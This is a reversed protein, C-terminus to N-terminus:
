WKAFVVLVQAASQDTTTQQVTESIVATVPERVELLLSGIWFRPLSKLHHSVGGYQSITGISISM